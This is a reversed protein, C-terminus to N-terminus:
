QGIKTTLPVIEVVDIVQVIEGRITAPHTAFKLKAGVWNKTEEGLTKKIIAANTKSCGFTTDEELWIGPILLRTNNFKESTQLVAEDTIDFLTSPSATIDAASLFKNTPATFDKVNVMKRKEQRSKLSNIYTLLTVEIQLVSGSNLVKELEEILEETKM